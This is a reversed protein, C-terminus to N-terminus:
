RVGIRTSREAFDETENVLASAYYIYTEGPTLAALEPPMERFIFSSQQRPYALTTVWLTEFVPEGSKAERIEVSVEVEKGQLEADCWTNVVFQIPKRNLKVYRSLSQGAGYDCYRFAQSVVQLGTQQASPTVPQDPADDQTGPQAKAETQSM